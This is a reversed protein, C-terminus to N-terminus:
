SVSRNTPAGDIVFNGELLEFVDGNAEKVQVDYRYTGPKVWTDQPTLKIVSKGNEADTHSSVTKKILASNDDTIKDYENDKVTFYLTAGVLSVPDQNKLYEIDFYVTTGRNIEYDQM